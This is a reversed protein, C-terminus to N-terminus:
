FGTFSKRVIYYDLLGGGDLIFYVVIDESGLFAPPSTNRLRTGIVKTRAPVGTDVLYSYDDATKITGGPLGEAELFAQIEEASSGSALSAEILREVDGVTTGVWVFNWLYLWMGLAIVVVVGLALLWRRVKGSPLTVMGM